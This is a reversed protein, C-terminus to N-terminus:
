PLPYLTLTKDLAAQMKTKINEKEKNTHMSNVQKNWEKKADELTKDGLQCYDDYYDDFTYEPDTLLTNKLDGEVPLKSKYYSDASSSSSVRRSSTRSNNVTSKLTQKNNEIINKIDDPLKAIPTGTRTTSWEVLNSDFTPDSQPAKATPDVDVSGHQKSSKYTGDKDKANFDQSHISTKFAGSKARKGDADLKNAECIFDATVKKGALDVNKEDVTVKYYVWFGEQNVWQKLLSEVQNEHVKNAEATIPYLNVDTGPGGLNDNLLHGKVYKQDNPSKPDTPLINM